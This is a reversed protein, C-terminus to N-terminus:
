PEPMRRTVLKPPCSPVASLTRTTDVGGAVARRVADSPVDFRRAYNRSHSRRPRSRGVRDGRRLGDDVREHLESPAVVRARRPRLRAGSTGADVGPRGVPSRFWGGHVGM